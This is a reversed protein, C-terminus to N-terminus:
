DRNPDIREFLWRTAYVIPISIAGVLLNWAASYGYAYKAAEGTSSGSTAKLQELYLYYGLTRVNEPADYGYLTFIPGQYTIFKVFMGLLTVSMVPYIIPLYIHWYEGAYRLGDIRGAEVLEIPVRGMTATNIIISGGFGLFVIMFLVMQTAYDASEMVQRPFEIGTPALWAPVGREFFYRLFLLMIMDSLISPLFLLVKMTKHAPMKKTIAFACFQNVPTLVLLSVCYFIAGNGIYAGVNTGKSSESLHIFIRKFNTFLESFRYYHFSGDTSDFWQFAQLVAEINCYLYVLLWQLVPYIFVVLCFLIAGIDKKKKKKVFNNNGGGFTAASADGMVPSAVSEKRQSFKSFLKM